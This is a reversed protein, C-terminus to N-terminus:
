NFKEILKSLCDKYILSRNDENLSIEREKGENSNFQYYSSKYLTFILISPTKEIRIKAKLLVQSSHLIL